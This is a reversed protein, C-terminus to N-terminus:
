EDYQMDGFMMACVITKKQCNGDGSNNMFIILDLWNSPSSIQAPSSTGQM